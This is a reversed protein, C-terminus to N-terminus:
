DLKSYFENMEKLKKDAEDQKGAMALSMAEFAAFRFEVEELKTGAAKADLIFKEKTFM